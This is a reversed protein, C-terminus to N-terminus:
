TTPRERLREAVANMIGFMQRDVFPAASERLPTYSLVTVAELAGALDEGSWQQYAPLCLNHLATRDDANVRHFRERGLWEFAWEGFKPAIPEVHAAITAALDCLDITRVWAADQESFRPNRPM